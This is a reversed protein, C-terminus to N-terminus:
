VEYSRHSTWIKSSIFIEARPLDSLLVGRGIASANGYIQATDFFRYGLKLAASVANELTSDTPVQWTGFGIGPMQVGNSLVLKDALSSFM